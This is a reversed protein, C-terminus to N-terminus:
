NLELIKSAGRNKPFQAVFLVIVQFISVDVSLV